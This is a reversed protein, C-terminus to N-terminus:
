FAEIIDSGHLVDSYRDLCGTRNIESLICEREEHLYHAHATSGPERYLAQLQPRVPITHFEQRAIREKGRSSWIRFQDYWPELCIPCAKLNLFPGTYMICSNICMNHVVLEIGTIELVLCMTRYYSPINIHPSHHLFAARNAKYTAESPNLLYLDLALQQDVDLPPSSLGHLPNCLRAVAEESLGVSPDSLTAAQLAKVFEACLRLDDLHVVELWLDEIDGPSLGASQGPLATDHAQPDGLLHVAADPSPSWSYNFAESLYDGESMPIGDSLVDSAGLPEAPAGTSPAESLPTDPRASPGPLPSSPVADRQFM